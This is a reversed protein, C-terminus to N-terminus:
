SPEVQMWESLELRGVQRWSLPWERTLDGRLSWLLYFSAELDLQGLSLLLKAAPLLARADDLLQMLHSRLVEALKTTTIYFLGLKGIAPKRNM